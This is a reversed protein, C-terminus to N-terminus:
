GQVPHALDLMADGGDATIVRTVLWDDRTDVLRFADWEYDGVLAFTGTVTVRADPVIEAAQGEFMVHFRDDGVALVFEALAAMGLGKPDTVKIDRAAGAIGTLDYKAAQPQTQAQSGGVVVLGDPCGTDASRCVGHMRLGIRRLVTGAEPLPPESDMIMWEYQRVWM